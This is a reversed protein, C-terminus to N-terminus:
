VLRDIISSPSFCHQCCEDDGTHDPADGAPQGSQQHLAGAEAQDAINDDTNQARQERGKQKRRQADDKVSPPPTSPAIKTAKM